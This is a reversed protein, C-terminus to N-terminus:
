DIYKYYDQSSTVQFGATTYLKMADPNTLAVELGLHEFGAAVERDIIKRLVSSGIRQGRYSSSVVFGYIWSEGHIRTVRIKGVPQDHLLIIENQCLQTLSMDDYFEKSDAYTMEFGDSDLQILLETDEESAQRLSVDPNVITLQDSESHYKMQYESMEYRCSITDLFPKASLSNAPANLLIESITTLTTDDLGNHLLRTFIGQRRYNPHVMGCIELKGGFFYRGLFAVMTGDKVEYLHTGDDIPHEELM